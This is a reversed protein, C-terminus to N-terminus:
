FYFCKKNEYLYSHTILMRKISALKSLVDTILYLKHNTIIYTRMSVDVRLSM